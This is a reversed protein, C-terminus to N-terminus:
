DEGDPPHAAREAGRRHRGPRGGAVVPRRGRPARRRPHHRGAARDIGRPPGHRDPGQPRQVRHVPFRGGGRRVRRRRRAGGARRDPAPLRDEDRRRLRAGQRPLGGRHRDGPLGRRRARAAARAAAPDRAPLARVLHGLFQRDAGQGALGAALAAARRPGRAPVAAPDRGAPRGTGGRVSGHAAAGAVAQAAPVRGCRGGHRDGGGRDHGLIERAVGTSHRPSIPASSRPRRSASSATSPVSAGPRTSSCSPRRASSASASSCRRTRRRRQGHRGGAAPARRAFEAQVGADTFTYREM